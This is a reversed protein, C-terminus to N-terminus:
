RLHRPWARGPYLSSKRYVFWILVAIAILAWIRVIFIALDELIQLGEGASVRVQSWFSLDFPVVPKDRILLSSQIGPDQYISISVTSFQIADELALNSLAAQDANAAQEDFKDEAKITESLKSEQRNIDNSIRQRSYDARHNGWQNTLLRLSVDEATINRYVLFRSLTQVVNLLSDLRNDPVRLILQGQVSYHLTQLASDPSVSTSTSDQVSSILSANSVFGGMQGTKNEIFSTAEMVNQVKFKLDGTRLFRRSPLQKPINTVNTIGTKDAISDSLVANMETMNKRESNCAPLILAILIGTM